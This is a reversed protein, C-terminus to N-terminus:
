ASERILIESQVAKSVPGAVRGEVLDLVLSTADEAIQRIPQVVSTLRPEVYEGLDIGDYGMVAVDQPCRIKLVKLAKLAGIAMEDNVCFVATPKPGPNRFLALAAEYGSEILLHGTTIFNKKIPIGHDSLAAKYGELRIQTEPFLEAAAIMAIDKHGKQILYTVAKRAADFHNCYVGSFRKTHRTDLNLCVVPQNWKNLLTKPFDVSYLAPDCYPSLLLGDIGSSLVTNDISTLVQGKRLIVIKCNYKPERPARGHYARTMFSPMPM